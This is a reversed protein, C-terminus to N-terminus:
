SVVARSRLPRASRITALRVLGVSVLVRFSLRVNHIPNSSAPTGEAFRLVMLRDIRGLLVGGHMLGSFSGAFRRVSATFRSTTDGAQQHLPDHVLSSTFGLYCSATVQASDSRM